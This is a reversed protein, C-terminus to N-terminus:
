DAACRSTSLFFFGVAHPHFFGMTEDDDDKAWEDSTSIVDGSSAEVDAVGSGIDSDRDEDKFGM